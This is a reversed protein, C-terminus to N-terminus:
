AGLEILLFESQTNAKLNLGSEQEIQLGDGDYLNQDEISLVGELQLKPLSLSKIKEQQKLKTYHMM